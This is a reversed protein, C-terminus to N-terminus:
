PLRTYIMWTEDSRLSEVNRVNEKSGVSTMSYFSTCNDIDTRVNLHTFNLVFIRINCIVESSNVYITSQLIIYQRPAYVPWRM